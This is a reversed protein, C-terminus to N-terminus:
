SSDGVSEPLTVRPKTVLYDGMALADMGTASFDQLAQFPSEVIPEGSVNFSTNLVVPVGTRDGFERILRYYKPSEAETVTQPRTTGDVHTVAPIIDQKSKKVEDLLIMFPSDDAHVLYEDAHDALLSPAFPRWPERNKVHENVAHLSESETPNALISRHGLARAGYEMKGQFWGVIYEDALLDAATACIDECRHYKWKSRSLAGHIDDNSYQSGYYVHTFEPNPKRDTAKRYAQLAAGLCVGSDNSAPQVFLSDVCDMNHIERNLKCNMAVGGALAVDRNGMRSVHGRVLETVIEETRKQLHYAFDKDDSTFESPEDKEPVFKELIRKSNNSPSTISTVDYDDTGTSTEQEFLREFEPNEEGYSALGMVKGADSGHDYGLHTTGSSYFYGISNERGFTQVRNLDEDWLVTADYEGQADISLTIVNTPACYSASAAHAEHHSISYQKANIEGHSELRDEVVRVHAKAFSGALTMLRQAVKANKELDLGPTIYEPWRRAWRLNFRPDRGIGIVDVDSLDIGGQNLVFEIANHPFELLGRKNRSFREEEAIAVIKEGKLLCAGPDHEGWMDVFRYETGLSPKIGLTFVSNDGSDSM